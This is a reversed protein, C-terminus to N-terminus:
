NVLAIKFVEDASKVPIFELTERVKPDIDELSPLNEEPIIVTKVGAAYAALTKERLGGIALVKGSVTVEGTMALDRRVPKGSLASALVTALTIGASPGDKPVAGDPVHIHIDNKKYFESDIGLEKSRTRVFSLAAHASEKMVDGLSGTLELKGTGEMVVAEVKLLDGGVETYALGNVIGVENNASIKEPRAKRNGLYEKIDTGKISIKGEYGEARKLAAKRCLAALKRELNRVGAEATYYDILELIAGDTVSFSKKDLGHLKLQKPVLHRKAIELKEHRTYTNLEIIEMRDLLPRAITDLTNATAIFVCDSLDFALETYHDRFNKNQEPDLVELLASEPDGNHSHGVKDIEDLLIVPNNVGAHILAETIRGPMAGVYTKRHGRIDSEDKIGGLSVRVFKRNMSRAISSAVSTKGVGPPGVLCIIQSRLEPSLKKVAIYELIRTKVKEIGFHDAELVKRAYKIDVVTDDSILWPMSLCTDLYGRIVANEPSGFANNAMREAECTLKERVYDPLEAAEIKRFYEDAEESEGLEERIAKIKERLYYDHQNKDMALAVRNEIRIESEVAEEQEKLVVITRELRAVPDYIEFIEQRLESSEVACAAMFDTFNSIDPSSKIKAEATPSLMRVHKHANKYAKFATDRMAKLEPTDAFVTDRQDLTVSVSFLNGTKIFGDAKARCVPEFIVRIRSKDVPICRKIKAVAGYEHISESTYDKIDSPKKLAIFMIRNLGSAEEVAAIDCKSTFEAVFPFGPFPVIDRLGAVLLTLKLTENTNITM